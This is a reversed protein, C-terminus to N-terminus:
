WKGRDNLRDAAYQVAFVHADASEDPVEMWPLLLAEGYEYEAQAQADAVSAHLTDGGFEGATTYRFLMADGEDAIILLVDAVPLMKEETIAPFTGTHSARRPGAIPGVLVVLRPHSGNPSM